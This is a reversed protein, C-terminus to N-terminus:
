VKARSAALNMVVSCNVATFEFLINPQRSRMRLVERVIGVVM